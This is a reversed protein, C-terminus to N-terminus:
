PNVILWCPTSRHVVVKAIPAGVWRGSILGGCGIRYERQEGNEGERKLINKNNRKSLENKIQSDRVCACGCGTVELACCVLQFPVVVSLLSYVNEFRFGGENSM